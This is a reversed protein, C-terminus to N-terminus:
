GCALEGKVNVVSWLGTCYFGNRCEITPYLRLLVLAIQLEM